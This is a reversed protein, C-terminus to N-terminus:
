HSQQPGPRGGGHRGTLSCVQLRQARRNPKRGPRRKWRSGDATPRFFSSAMWNRLAWDPVLLRIRRLIKGAGNNRYYPRYIGELKGDRVAKRILSVSCEALWAADASTWLKAM